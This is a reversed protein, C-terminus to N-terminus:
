TALFGGDIPMTIGNIMGALDSLLFLIPGVVDEVECFRHLPIAAKMPDAKEPKSWGVKGMETLVVTPNVANSRINHPGLELAMVRTLHDVAAKSACYITHNDLAAQSAQSSVNVVAGGNKEKIMQRTVLQGVHMMAKVNINFHNDFDESKADIFKDLKAIAANNVLGTVGALVSEPLASEVADWNAIDLTITTVKDGLESKLKDLDAQTRSVAIVHAGHKVLEHTLGRGIGKGAGTVLIKRNEFNLNM